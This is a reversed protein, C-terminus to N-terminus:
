EGATPEAVFGKPWSVVITLGEGPQLPRTAEFVVAGGVGSGTSFDRGSEGRRGTYATTSLVEAGPPLHVIARAREIAFVWGHGIANFYLEDFDDFFGLQRDTRYTLTYTYHDPTLFVDKQGIYVRVGNGRRETFYPEPEGDRMVEVVTFGVRVRNGHSDTYDTPFDRYIGRKIERGEARVRITETVTLNGNPAVDIQADFREIIEAARASGTIVPHAALVFAALAPVLWRGALRAPTNTSQSRM